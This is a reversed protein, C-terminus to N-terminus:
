HTRGEHPPLSEHGDLGPRHGSSWLKEYIRRVRASVAAGLRSTLAVVTAGSAINELILYEDQDLTAHPSATLHRLFQRALGPSLPRGGNVIARAEQALAPVAEHKPLYGCAGAVLAPFLREDGLHAAGVLVSASPVQRTVAGILKADALEAGVLVVRPQLQALMREAQSTDAAVHCAIGPFAAELIGRWGSASPADGDVVLGCTVTGTASM